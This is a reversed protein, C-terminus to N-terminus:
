YITEWSFIRCIDYDGRELLMGPIFFLTRFQLYSVYDMPKEHRIIGTLTSDKGASTMPM